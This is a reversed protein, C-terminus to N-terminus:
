SRSALIGKVIAKAMEERHAITACRSADTKNSLYGGEVLVATARTARLVKLDQYIVGRNRGKLNLDMSRLIKSAVAKGSASRYFVEMGSVSRDRTANFHISVFIANRQRNAIAARDDLDVFTDTRRTMVVKLGKAKLLRELRLALDLCLKKEILGNHVCGGDKGGHGADIVVTSFSLAWVPAHCLLLALLLGLRLRDM